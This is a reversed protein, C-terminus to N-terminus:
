TTALAERELAQADTATIGLERQLTDLVARERGTIVGDEAASAVSAKYVEFKRHARYEPTNEVSPMAADSVREALRQLPAIVFVLLSAAGIGVLTSGTRDEFFAAALESVAFFVAIFIAAVTSRRLTFKIKLDIDFVQTRLIGYSLLLVYLLLGLTQGQLFLLDFFLVEGFRDFGYFTTSLLFVTALFADRLGFGVLIAGAKTREQTGASTRRYASVAAVLGYLFLLGLLFFVWESGCVCEWDAYPVPAMGDIFARPALVAYLPAVAALAKLTRATWAGRLPAALPTDLTAVFLLYVAPLAVATANRIVMMAYASSADGLFYLVGLGAGASAGEVALLLALRRNQSRQPRKLFVLAALTWALVLFVVGPVGFWNWM